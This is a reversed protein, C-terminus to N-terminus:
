PDLFEELNPSFRRSEDLEQKKVFVPVRGTEIGGARSHPVKGFRTSDWGHLIMFDPDLIENGMFVEDSEQEPHTWKIHWRVLYMMNHDNECDVNVSVSTGKCVLRDFLARKLSERHWLKSRRIEISLYNKESATAIPEVIRGDWLSIKIDSSGNEINLMFAFICDTLEDLNEVKVQDGCCVANLSCQSEVVLGSGACKSGLSKHENAVLTRGYALEAPVEAGCVSCIIKSGEFKVEEVM